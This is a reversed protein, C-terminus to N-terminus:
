IRERSEKRSRDDTDATATDVAAMTLFRQPNAIFLAEQTEIGMGVAELIARYGGALWALGPGGGLTSWLSRRAGDTGLMLQAVFGRDIQTRLLRATGQAAGVGQRLAQDFELNVGTELLDTHYEADSVKDTHSMVVHSLPVGLASLVEIQEMGHRGEECHTLIPAGTRKSAISAAEFARRASDTMGEPGTAAKIIGSRHPSRSVDDSLHDHVDVGTEIDDVFMGALDDVSASRIWPLSEYYKDTHLGTAM